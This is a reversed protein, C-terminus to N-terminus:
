AAEVVRETGDSEEREADRGEGEVRREEVASKRKEEAEMEAEWDDVVPEVVKKVLKEKKKAFTVKGGSALGSGSLAAYANQGGVAAVGPLRRPAAGKAAVRSWGDAAVSDTERRVINQSADVSCLLLTGIQNAKVVAELAPKVDRLTQELGLGGGLPRLVVEESPLFIVEFRVTEDVPVASAVISKMEEETLGFRTGVLVFANLPNRNEDVGARKEERPREVIKRKLTRIRVAEGVTKGPARVFRPTKLLVVHRHPEPDLSESDLGFDEALAHLFAREQAKMPKFRMRKEGEDQAFVRFEREQSQAFSPSASYLDLTEDSYPIHDGGEIHSSPDIHLAAALRANRQQRACEENCQLTKNANGESTRSANCRTEQKQAQCPCAVIIKSACPKDEKCPYPAHCPAEDPHGCAKKPKGCPQSCAANSGADECEGPKHCPKRCFHSGCKLKNGCVQGCSVATLFCPQNKLTTKGCMCRRSVLFPCKPCSENDLHCNHQVQPHGCSKARECQFRCPPPSTGCPLPPELSTRGCHCTIEDFIAERCSHCPGKHCLEQCTHNGCKLLRGCVRTCIHEAEILDPPPAASGLPRSKKKQSLREAAKREGTCCREDCAHRGCSLTAHCVRFCQPRFESGQHCITSTTTRGCQCSIDVTKMCPLCDGAHCKQECAHGCGLPKMCAKDCNPIPDSCSDRSAGAFESLPTKGCPCHTVVDPSRPCHTSDAEQAHCPKECSHVGCDFPRNCSNACQYSGTWEEALPRDDNSEIQKRQSTKIDGQECCQIDKQEQGCYCRAQVAEECAGCLGEHCPRPCTHLGCPMLDGCVEDCSWGNEYDTEVCRRTVENKGCFCSQTPGMYTCPLCPGAHCTLQCPHPCKRVREKGCTNGCSHPPLGTPPRPDTEKGCWCTYTRPQEDKPLNCGPCRWQRAPPTEGNTLSARRAAASGENSAWKKICSLHFVTWCTHCSWVKSNRQVESTCIPCEYNAHEIDEHTRTMIDPATSKSMRRRRPANVPSRQAQHSTVLPQGPVFEAAGAQLSVGGDPTDQTLAGGFARGNVTRQPRPAGGRGRRGRGGSNTQSVPSDNTNAITGNQTPPLSAPRM